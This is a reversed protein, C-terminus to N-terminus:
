LRACLSIPAPNHEVTYRGRVLARIRDWARRPLVAPTASGLGELLDDIFV